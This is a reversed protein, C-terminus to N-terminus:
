LPATIDVEPASMPELRTFLTAPLVLNIEGLLRRGNRAPRRM